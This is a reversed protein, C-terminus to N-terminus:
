GAAAKMAAKGAWSDRVRDLSPMALRAVNTGDRDTSLIIRGRTTEEVAWRFMTLAERVVETGKLDLTMQLHTIFEDDVQMRIEM